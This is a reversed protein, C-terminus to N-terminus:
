ETKHRQINRLWTELCPYLIFLLYLLFIHYTIHQCVRIMYNHISSRTNTNGPKRSFPTMGSCIPIHMIYTYIYTHPIHMIYIHLKRYRLLIFDHLIVTQPHLVLLSQWVPNSFNASSTAIFSYKRSTGIPPAVYNLRTHMVNSTHLRISARAHYMLFTSGGSACLCSTAQTKLKDERVQQM